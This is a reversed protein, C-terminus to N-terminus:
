KEAEKAPAPRYPYINVPVINSRKTGRLVRVFGPGLDRPVKVTMAEAIIAPM